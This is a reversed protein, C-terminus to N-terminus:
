SKWSRCTSSRGPYTRRHYKWRLAACGNWARWGQSGEHLTLGRSLEDAFELAEEITMKLGM